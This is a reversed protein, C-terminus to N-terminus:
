ETEDWTLGIETDSIATATLGTPVHDVIVVPIALERMSDDYLNSAYKRCTFAPVPLSATPISYEIQEISVPLNVVGSSSDTVAIVDFEQLLLAERAASLNYFFDADQKEALLGSCIRYAQDKNDIAQGNVALPITKKIKAISADDRIRLPNILRFDDQADRFVLDVANITKERNGLLWKLSSKIVNSRSTGSREEARDSFVAAVRMVEVGTRNLDPPMTASLRPLAMIAFGTGNNEVLFRLYPSSNEPSVYWRLATAGAPLTYTSVNIQQGATITISKFKTTLTEGAANIASCVVAYAGATLVTGSGSASLTPATVPDALPADKAFTLGSDITLTGFKATLTVTKVGDFEVSFRRWLAPHCSIVGAIYSAISSETDAASTNFLFTTGALTISCVVPPSGTGTVEITATAPTDAGDCGSFGVISFIGGTSSFPISNQATDYIAATVTRIESKTTHPSILLWNNINHIWDAVNDVDIATEGVSLAETAFAYPAPKKNKLGITGAATQVMFMRAAVFLVDPLFDNANMREGIVVNSTYRRRMFQGLGPLQGEQPNPPDPPDAPPFPIAM